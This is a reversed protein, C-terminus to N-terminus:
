DRLQTQKKGCPSDMEEGVREKRATVREKRVTVRM